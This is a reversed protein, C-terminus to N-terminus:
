IDNTPLNIIFQSKTNTSCADYYWVVNINNHNKIKRMLEVVRDKKRTATKTYLKKKM